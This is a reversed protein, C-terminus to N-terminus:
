DASTSALAASPNSEELQAADDARLTIVLVDRYAPLEPDIPEVATVGHYVRRDDVLAADLPDTLTFAGLERRDDDLIRTTGSRINHRAILLVLVFDVGDRHMGEPTPQGPADHHAEIRFQHVEVRWRKVEPQLPQFVAHCCLLAARMPAADAVAPEIPDFWRVIGGNLPNYDRSQYHPAHAERRIRGDAALSFVAYRRRRYRGGDAMYRDDGLQQWSAAFRAFGDLGSQRELLSRMQRAPVFAFHSEAVAQTVGPLPASLRDAALAEQHLLSSASSAATSDNSFAGLITM